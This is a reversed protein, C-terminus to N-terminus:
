EQVKDDVMRRRFVIILPMLSAVAAVLFAVSLDQGFYVLFGVTTLGIFAGVIMNVERFLIAQAISSERAKKYTLTNLPLAVMRQGFNWLSDAVVFVGPTRQLYKLVWALFM